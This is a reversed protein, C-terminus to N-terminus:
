ILYNISETIGGEIGEESESKKNCFKAVKLELINLTLQTLKLSYLTM